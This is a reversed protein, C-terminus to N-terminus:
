LAALWRKLRAAEAEILSPDRFSQALLSVGQLSAMLQLTLAVGDSRGFAGFQVALWAMPEAFLANSKAGLAGGEKLLEACLSGMPCGREAVVARNDLTADIFLRIRAKPDDLTEAFDRLRHFEDLRTDLIAAGLEDKTKFYYYINGIPVKSEDALDAITTKRFGQRYALEVASGRLKSRKDSRAL